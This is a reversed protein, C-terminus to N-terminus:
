ELSMNICKNQKSRCSRNWFTSKKAPLVLSADQVVSVQRPEDESNKLFVPSRLVYKRVYLLSFIVIVVVDYRWDDHELASTGTGWDMAWYWTVTRQSSLQVLQPYTCLCTFSYKCLCRVCTCFWGREGRMMRSAM